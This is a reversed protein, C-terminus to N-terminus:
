HLPDTGTNAALAKGGAALTSAQVANDNTYDAVASHDYHPIFFKGKGYM